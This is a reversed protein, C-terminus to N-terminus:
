INLFWGIILIQPVCLLPMLLALGWRKTTEKLVLIETYDTAVGAMLFTFANGPAQGRTMLDSAIPASGESCIEILTAAILTLGLGALTPGFWTTMIDTPVYTQLIAGLVMGFLIWRVIMRSSTLSRKLLDKFFAGDYRTTALAHRGQTWPNFDEPITVRNPNPSIYGNRELTEIILGTLFAVVLSGALFVVMWGWGMLAGIILTVSLSNWPSAILFAFVQGLSAGREYLKAGVMLVGHNCLDLAVGAGIARILSQWGQERGVIAIVYDRPIKDVLGVALMGILIGWWMLAFLDALAHALAGLGLPTTHTVFPSALVGLMVLSGSIWLLWDTKRRPPHCCSSM